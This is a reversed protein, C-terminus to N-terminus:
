RADSDVSPVWLGPPLTFEPLPPLAPIWPELRARLTRARDALSAVLVHGGRPASANPMVRPLVPVLLAVLLAFGAAQSAVRFWRRSPLQVLSAPTSATGSADAVGGGRERALARKLRLRAEALESPTPGADARFLADLRATEDSERRDDSM